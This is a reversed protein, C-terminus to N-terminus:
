NGNEVQSSLKLLLDPVPIEVRRFDDDLLFWKGAMKDFVPVTKPDEWSRLKWGYRQATEAAVASHEILGNLRSCLVVLNSARERAKSGGMGRNARHNPSVAETEGCHVCRGDRAMLRQFQKPTM